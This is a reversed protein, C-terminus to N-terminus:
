YFASALFFFCMKLYTYVYKNFYKIPVRIKCLSYFVLLFNKTFIVEFYLENM